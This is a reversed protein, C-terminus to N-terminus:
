SELCAIEVVKANESRVAGVNMTSRVTLSHRLDPRIDMYSAKKGVSLKIGTKHYALVKRSGGGSALRTSHVFKFGMFTDIEANVLARVTNYDADGIEGARLLDRKQAPGIVIYREDEPVDTTDLIYSAQRLKGITLGAATASGSEVYDIAIKQGAPLADATTGDQGIYRTGNAAAICVDDMTRNFSAAFNMIAESTPLVIQSLFFEDNEDFTETIEYPSQTLWYKELATDNNPTSQKRSTIAVAARADMLNFAKNKGVFDAKTVSGQLKSILQQVALDVNTQYQTPYFQDITLSM